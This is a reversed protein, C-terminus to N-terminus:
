TPGGVLVWWCEEKSDRRMRLREEQTWILIGMIRQTSLTAVASLRVSLCFAVLRLLARLVM